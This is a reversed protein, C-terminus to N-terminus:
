VHKERQRANDKKYKGLGEGPGCFCVGKVWGTLHM